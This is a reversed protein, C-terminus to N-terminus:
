KKLEQTLAEVKQKASAPFFQQVFVQGIADGMHGNLSEVARKWRPGLKKQGTMVKMFAFSANVFRESLAPAVAAVLHFASWSRLVGIDTTNLIKAIGAVGSLASVILKANGPLGGAEM